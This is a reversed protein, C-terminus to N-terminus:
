NQSFIVEKCLKFLLVNKMVVMENVCDNMLITVM